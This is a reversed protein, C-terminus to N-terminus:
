VRSPAGSGALIAAARRVVPEAGLREAIERAEDVLPAARENRGTAILHDAYDLLAQALHYPTALTREDAIAADFQEDASPDSRGAARRALALTREAKMLRPLKAENRMGLHEILDDVAAEDQVEFAARVALAWRWENGELAIRGDWAPALADKARALGVAHQGESVAVLAEADAALARDLPDESTLWSGLRALMSRASASEGRLSALMLACVVVYEQEGLGDQEFAEALVAASGEWDGALILASALNEIALGLARHSGARRAVAAAARAIEAGALPDDPTVTSALNALALGQSYLDGAMEALRGAERLYMVCERRRGLEMLTIARDNYLGAMLQWPTDVQEALACAEASLRDADPTGGMLNSLEKLADVTAADPNDRLVGLARDVYERAETHRGGFRLAAGARVEARAANRTDGLDAFGQRARLAMETARAFDGDTHMARAARLWLDAARAGADPANAAILLEAADAFNTGASGRAGLRNSREGARVLADVALARTEDVDAADPVAALADLYHRVIVDVVEEGDNAYTHRLHAAVALHRAKRDHRSLTDRAVQRLMDNGFRYTGRQPSLPDAVVELVGRHVLDTLAARVVDIDVGAVASVADAPFSTGIISADAVLKRVDPTLADLRAALLGHLSDPVSLTGVEGVLKYVGGSPVVIDHDILSRITEVAFLPIGHAQAAIANAASAPLEPVLADLLIAMSHPDLADLALQTRNRGSAWTPREVRMEPRSFTLVFIPADRSWDVLHDLFDLLGADANHLDEVVLVVPSSAALREFWVRWGAFLDDRALNQEVGSAFTVGLLRALRAGVYERELEDPVYRQLGLALKSAAVDTPDEDAIELRQRVMEALAWFSVGDGYSLCRGRHWWITDALGDIYKEFEWGLRSKGVGAPGTVAVLRIQRRDVSAHFLEKVLRLEPDRGTMPAELGDVRQAGGVNSLVRGARWLQQPESKGKLEFEGAESFEVGREALRQTATDVFVSGPDAVAQVRAATNVSDGAVMGEGVAGVTVAVEGTVVGARAALTPANIEVGLGAVADVLDLAARVARETDGEVAVPTGWVAMVADGIFKEVVGGHRTIVTRATEFYRSLLERVEEPDRSESLPTFGVLDCFLVSCVRREAVPTVVTPPVAGDTSAALAVGCSGCFKQGAAAPTGCAPCTLALPTGCEKCFRFDAPNDMGCSPCAASMPLMM